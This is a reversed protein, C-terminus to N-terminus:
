PQQQGGIARLARTRACRAWGGTAYQRACRNGIRRGRGAQRWGVPVPQRRRRAEPDNGRLLRRQYSPKLREQAQRPRRAIDRQAAIGCPCSPGAHNAPLSLSKGFGELWWRVVLGGRSHAIVDIKGSANAFFRGLELANVIPSVVLTAHDFFIVNQYAGAGVTVRNLFDLGEQTATFEELMNTANSFTGHVFLLTSGGFVPMEAPPGLRFTRANIRQLRRLRSRLTRDLAPNLAQDIAGVAAVIKNPELVPFTRTLVVPSDPMQADDGLMPPLPLGARRRLRRRRLGIDVVSPPAVPINDRWFLVGDEEILSVTKIPSDSSNAARRRRRRLGSISVKEVDYDVHLGNFLDEDRDWADAHSLLREPDEQDDQPM